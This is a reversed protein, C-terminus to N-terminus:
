DWLAVGSDAQAPQVIDPLTITIGHPLVVPQEALGPNAEFVARLTAPNLAGYHRFVIDDVVDGDRTKYTLM